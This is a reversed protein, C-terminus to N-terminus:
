RITSSTAIPPRRSFRALNAISSPGDVDVEEDREDGPATLAVAVAAAAAAAAAAVCFRCVIPICLPAAEEPLPPMADPNPALFFFLVLISAEEETFPAAFLFIRFTCFISM